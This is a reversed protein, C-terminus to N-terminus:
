LFFRALMASLLGLYTGLANAAIALCLGIPVLRKEYVAGVLPASVVGGFNAQSATALVGLPLRLWRGGVLMVVGHVLVVGLGLLLWVPASWLGALSAQAGMAALVVYLCSQGLTEGHSGLRRFAPVLSAGLALTTVLLVIWGSESAFAM